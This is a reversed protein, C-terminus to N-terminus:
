NRLVALIQEETASSPNCYVGVKDSRSLNGTMDAYQYFYCVTANEKSWQLSYPTFSSIIWRERNLIQLLKHPLSESNV